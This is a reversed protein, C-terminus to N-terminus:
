PREPSQIMHNLHPAEAVHDIRPPPTRGRLWDPEGGDDDEDMEPADPDRLPRLAGAAPTSATFSCRGLV